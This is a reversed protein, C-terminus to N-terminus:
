LGQGELNYRKAFEKSKEGTPDFKAKVKAWMDPKQKAMLKITKIAREKENETCDECGNDL